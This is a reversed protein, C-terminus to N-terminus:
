GTGLAQSEVVRFRTAAVTTLEPFEGSEGAGSWRVSWQITARVPFADNPQGASPRRFTHGCDPSPSRPDVSPHYPTGSGTCTVVSGDGMAWTVTVPEAVATVSVGPVSATASVEHWGGTLWLWTPLNVLQHGIPSAAIRPEPLRLRNRALQAVEAPSLVPESAGDPIWVPGHSWPDKGDPSCLVFYWGGPGDPQAVPDEYDVPVNRCERGDNVGGLAESDEGAGADVPSGPGGSGSDNGAGLECFPTPIQECDVSGWPDASAPLAGAIGLLFVAGAAVIASKLM